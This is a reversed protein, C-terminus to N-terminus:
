TGLVAAHYVGQAPGLAASGGNCFANSAALARLAVPEWHNNGRRAAISAAERELYYAVASGGDEAAEHLMVLKEFMLETAQTGYLEALELLEFHSRLTEFVADSMSSPQEVVFDVVVTDDIDVTAVLFQELNPLEDRFAHLYAAGGDARRYTDSKTLNCVACVPILNVTLATFEPFLSYPLYHDLQGSDRHGCMCCKKSRRLLRLGIDRRKTYRLLDYNGQLAKVKPTDPHEEGSEDQQKKKTQVPVPLVTQLATVPTTTSYSNYAALVTGRLDSLVVQRATSAEHRLEDFTDAENAADFAYNLQIM